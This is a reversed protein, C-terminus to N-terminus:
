QVVDSLYVLKVDAGRLYDETSRLAQLTWPHPHGIAVAVGNNRALAVARLLREKVVTADETDADIFISNRAAPMGLDRAMNYAVSKPSTLSDLFFM